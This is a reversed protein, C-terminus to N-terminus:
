WGLRGAAREDAREYADAARRLAEGLERARGACAALAADATRVAQDNAATTAWDPNASGDPAVAHYSATLEGRVLDALEGLGASARRLAGPLVEFDM